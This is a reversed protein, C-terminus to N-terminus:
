ARGRQSAAAARPAAGRLECLARGPDEARMLHEGVLFAHAGARELRDIDEPGSIGSEAVLVRGPPVRPALREFVSLDTEFTRLDRNNIGVIEAGASLALELEVEDHVEVLSALGREGAARLLEGLADGLVAAILLVADAGALRAEDLQYPDVVFDKRLLPLETAARVARLHDLSGGFFPGDTLVSLAAAGAEGYRDAIAVPDFGARIEGRSPSRRKLEALIRPCPGDALAARFAERRPEPSDAARRALEEPPLRRRAAELDARTRALIRDLLTM